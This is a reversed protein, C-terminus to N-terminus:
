FLDSTALEVETMVVMQQEVVLGLLLPCLNTLNLSVNVAIAAIGDGSLIVGSV